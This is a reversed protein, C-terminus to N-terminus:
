SGARARWWGGEMRNMLMRTCAAMLWLGCCLSVRVDYGWRLVRVDLTFPTDQVHSYRLLVVRRQATAARKALM